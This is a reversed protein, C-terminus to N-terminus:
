DEDIDTVDVKLIAEAYRKYWVSAALAKKTLTRYQTFNSGLEKKNNWLEHQITDELHKLFLGYCSTPDGGAKSQYFAVTLSLGNVQILAPFTLCLRGYDKRFKEPKEDKVRSIHTLAGLAYTHATSKM